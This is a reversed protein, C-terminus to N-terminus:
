SLILTRLTGYAERRHNVADHEAETLEEYTKAFRPLWFISRFPYGRTHPVLQEETILGAIAASATLTRRGDHFACVMVLRATRQEPPVGDLRELAMGIMEEDTKERPPIGTALEGLTPWRRSKVGPEGGLADIELGADDAVTPIGSWAFYAKAKLVANDTLTAGTEAVDPVPMGVDALSLLEFGPGLFRAMEGLKGANKTGILLKM